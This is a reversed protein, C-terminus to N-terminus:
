RPLSHPSAKKVNRVTLTNETFEIALQPRLPQYESVLRKKSAVPPVLPESNVSIESGVIHMSSFFRGTNAFQGFGVQHIKLVFASHHM